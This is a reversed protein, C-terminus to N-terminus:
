ERLNLTKRREIEATDRIVKTWVNQRKKKDPKYDVTCRCREHRRYVDEPESHYEYSGALNRCWACADGGLRRTIVPKLGADYHFDANAKVADDVVSQCFNIIPDDLIWKIAEFDDADALRDIIGDIRSQNIDPTQARINIGASENLLSQVESSFDSILSFNNTMTPNLIREAINYYMRGDPLVDATINNGFVSSLISGVEIAFDNVTLYDAKRSKLLKLSTKLKDSALSQATFDSQIKELLRPVIDDMM